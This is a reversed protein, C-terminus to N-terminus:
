GEMKEKNERLLQNRVEMTKLSIDKNKSILYLLTKDIIMLVTRDLDLYAMQRIEELGPTKRGEEIYDAIFVIKELPSMNPRGVTHFEIANLIDEDGIAYEYRAVEKGVPGHLTELNHDALTERIIDFSRAKKLLTERRPYKACDHLLAALGAKTQDEGYHKALEMASERVRLSHEYRSRGINELLRAEMSPYSRYLGRAEIYNEVAEPLLYKISLDQSIRERIETSSIDFSPSDLFDAELKFKSSLSAIEDELRAKDLRGRRFVLFKCLRALEDIDKWNKLGLLSDEGVVFYLDAEKYEKRLQRISDITYTNGQRKIEMDSAKFYPNNGIALEVMRYRDEASLVGEEKKHYSKGTPMYIVQDLGLSTRALEGILLHGNHIPNFTGGMIGIKM